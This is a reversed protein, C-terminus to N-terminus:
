FVISIFKPIIFWYMEAGITNAVLIRVLFIVSCLLVSSKNNTQLHRYSVISFLVIYICRDKIICIFFCFTFKLIIFHLLEIHWILIVKVKYRKEMSNIMFVGVDITTTKYNKRARKIYPFYRM